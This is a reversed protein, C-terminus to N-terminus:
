PQILQAGMYILKFPGIHMEDGLKLLQNSVQQANVYVHNTSGLDIIRYGGQVQELRAHHGSVQPHNLVVNNDSLRGITIIPAGLPIPRIKPAIDQVFRFAGAFEQVSAFRQQPEKALAQQVVQEVRSPIQLSKEFPPPSHSLHQTIIEFATGEFPRTGCLWEYVVVGLAYQDSSRIPKGQIQEPAMYPITGGKEPIDLSQSSHSVVAIGFDSLLVQNNRGLLMNEPKIDRHILMQDHAYQLAPAIQEIYKMVTDLPVRTGKPHRSRLTGNPAYDMVLFATGDQEVGFDVLQVIHPHELRFTRAENLFNRLDDPNTLQMKLVKVADQTGFRIHEGLYVDGFSGRGLFRILRYDGYQQGVRNAM